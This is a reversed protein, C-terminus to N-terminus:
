PLVCKKRLEHRVRMLIKGMFNKGHGKEGIGWTEDLQSDEALPANGTQLLFNRLTQHQKFKALNAKYMIKVKPIDWDSADSKKPKVHWSKPVIKKAKTTHAYDRADDPTELNRIKEQIQKDQFKKAQYYHETTPWKKNEIYILHEPYFNTLMFNKKHKEHDYFYIPQAKDDYTYIIEGKERIEITKASAITSTLFLSSLLFHKFM